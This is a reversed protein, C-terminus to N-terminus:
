ASQRYGHLRVGLQVYIPDIKISYKVVTAHGVAMHRKLLCIYTHVRDVLLVGYCLLAFRV